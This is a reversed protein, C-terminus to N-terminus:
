VADWVLKFLEVIDKLRPEGWSPFDDAHPSAKWRILTEGGVPLGIGDDPYVTTSEIRLELRRRVEKHPGTHYSRKAPSVEPLMINFYNAESAPRIM